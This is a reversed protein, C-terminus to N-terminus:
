FFELHGFDPLSFVFILQGFLFQFFLAQKPQAEYSLQRGPLRTDGWIFPRTRLCFFFKKKPNIQDTKGLYFEINTLPAALFHVFMTHTDSYNLLWTWLPSFSTPQKKM